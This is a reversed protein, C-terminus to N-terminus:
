KSSFLNRSKIIQIILNMLRLSNLGIYNSTIKKGFISSHNCLNACTRWLFHVKSLLNLYKKIKIEKSFQSNKELAILDNEEEGNGNIDIDKDHKFENGNEDFINEYFLFFEKTTSQAENQLLEISTLVMLNINENNIPKSEFQTIENM